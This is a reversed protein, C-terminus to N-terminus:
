KVLSIRTGIQLSDRRFKDVKKAIRKLKPFFTTKLMGNSNPDLYAGKCAETFMFSGDNQM